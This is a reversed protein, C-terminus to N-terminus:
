DGIDLGANYMKWSIESWVKKAVANADTAGNVQIANAAFVSHSEGSDIPRAVQNTAMLSTSAVGLEGSNRYAPVNSHLSARFRYVAQQGGMADVDKDTFVLEGKAGYFLQSDVGKPGPAIDLDGGDAKDPVNWSDALVDRPSMKFPAGHTKYTMNVTTNKPIADIARKTAEAGQKATDSIWTNVNM